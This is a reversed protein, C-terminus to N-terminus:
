PYSRERVLFRMRKNGIEGITFKSKVCPHTECYFNEQIPFLLILFMTLINFLSFVNLIPAMWKHRGCFIGNQGGETWMRGCPGSGGGGM